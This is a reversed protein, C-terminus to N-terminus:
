RPELGALVAAAATRPREPQPVAPLGSRAAAVPGWSRALQLVARAALETHAEPAVAVVPMVTAPPPPQPVVLGALQMSQIAVM